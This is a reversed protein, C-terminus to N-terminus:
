HVEFNLLKRTLAALDQLEYWHSDAWQGWYQQKYMYHLYWKLLKDHNKWFDQWGFQLSGDIEINGRGHQLRFKKGDQTVEIDKIMDIRITVNIFKKVFPTAKVDAAWKMELVFGDGGKRYKYPSETIDYNRQELFERIGGLLQKADFPGLFKVQRQPLKLEPEEAM